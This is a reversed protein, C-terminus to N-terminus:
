IGLQRIVAAMAILCISCIRGWDQLKEVTSVDKEGTLVTRGERTCILTDDGTAVAIGIAFGSIVASGAYLMNKRMTVPVQDESIIIESNKSVIGDNGTVKGETVLINDAATLRIDCPVTDGTDLIIVDGTVVRDAAIIKVNGGRVVKARPLALSANKEFVRESWIYIGVRAVRGLALMALIALAADGFDFFACAVVTLILIITTLDFLSRVAYRGASATKVEWVTNKGHRLRRQAEGEGLGKAGDTRFIRELEANSRSHWNTDRNM